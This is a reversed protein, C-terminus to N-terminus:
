WLGSFHLDLVYFSDWLLGATAWVTGPPKPEWIDHCEACPLPSTTLRVSRGGKGGLFYVQYENRNLPQISGLAM